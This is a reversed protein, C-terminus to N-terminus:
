SGGGMIELLKKYALRVLWFGIIADVAFLYLDHAGQLWPIPIVSFDYHIPKLFEQGMISLGPFTITPNTPPTFNVVKDLLDFFVQFPFYLIGFHDEMWTNWDDFYMTFYSVEKGTEPDIVNEPVFLTKLGNEVFEWIKQPLQVISNFLDTIKGLIGSLLGVEESEVTIELGYPSEPLTGYGIEFGIESLGVNPNVSSALVDDTHNFQFQISHVDKKPVFSSKLTFTKLRANYVVDGTITENTGDVYRLRVRYIQITTSPDVFFWEGDETTYKISFYFNDATFNYKKGERFIPQSTKDSVTLMHHIKLPNSFGRLIKTYEKYGIAGNDIDTSDSLGQDEWVDYSVKFSSADVTDAAVSFATFCLLM